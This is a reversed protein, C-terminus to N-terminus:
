RELFLDMQRHYAQWHDHSHLVECLKLSQLSTEELERERKNWIDFLELSPATGVIGPNTLGLFRVGTLNKTQELNQFNLCLLRSTMM